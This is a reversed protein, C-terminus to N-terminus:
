AGRESATPEQGPPAPYSIRAHYIGCLSKILSGEVVHVDKLTMECRDLQGDMLRRSVMTHVQNEIRPPTPDSMARVSTESADALLLIAAERSAPKPGPYRFDMEDPARDAQGKRQEAAASYFYQVLTTGHHTAIFEHLVRPLGYERAMEMGDKVHGTIILMSMAPSLKDHKSAAGTEKNEVFYGPKNIKGVDHYYAGVRALLGRAAIAGAAAECMAGLQLSHNYTGPAEMALRKLLPKSADCWELLTMSTAVGFIREIFPLLGHILFGVLLTFGAAWAGDILMFRLPISEALGICLVAALVVGATVGAVEILKSRSRIEHLWVISATAGALLVILMQLGARLQLVTLLALALSLVVALRHNYAITMVVATMVVTLVAAYPSWGLACVMTKSIGLMILMVALVAFGRWHNAVIPRQYQVAYWCMAATLLLLIAARGVLRGWGRWPNTRREADLFALHEARLLNLEEEGLPVTKEGDPGKRRGASVLLQGTNYSRTPPDAEIAEIREDIDKRTLDANFRFLPQNRGFVSLLYAQINRRIPKDFAAALREAKGRLEGPRDLRVMDSLEKLKRSGEADVLWFHTVTREEQQARAEQGRVIATEALIQELAGIKDEYAKLKRGEAYPRWAKVGEAVSLGFQELLAEHAKDPQTTPEKNLEQPLSKLVAVIKEALGTSKFSAPTSRRAEEKAKQLQEKSEVEFSTRSHIAAPLYQGLRYLLPDPPYIDMALVVVYFLGVLLVSGVGGANRFRQWLGLGGYPMGKRVELRRRKPKKKFFLM